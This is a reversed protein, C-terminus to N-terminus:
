RFRLVVDRARRRAPPEPREAAYGVPVIAVPRLHAPLALIKRVRAEDFAGVWCSALGQDHAVLMMNQLSAAVDQVCYLEVGREGYERDIRHDACGVVVLPAEAVFMQRLAARALKERRARDFVLCFRRSQLNGASPAWRLGEIMAALVDDPVARTEFSRVSRRERIVDLLSM